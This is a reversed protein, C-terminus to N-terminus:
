YGAISRCMWLLKAWGADEFRNGLERKDRRYSVNLGGLGSFRTLFTRGLERDEQVLLM